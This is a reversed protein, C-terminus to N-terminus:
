TKRERLHLACHILSEVAFVPRLRKVVDDALLMNGLRQFLLDLGSPQGMGVQEDARAAGALGGAGLDQGLRDVALVRNVAIRAILAGGAAADVVPRDEVHDLEVGRGVVAHVVHAGQAVLRHEGGGIHALAHIDDVLHVHEAGRCEVGQQFDELFRRRVEHEDKRRRFQVFDRRRDEGAALPVAELADRDICDGRAQVIHRLLFVQVQLRVRGRQEGAHRVATHTVRQRQEVLAGAAIDDRGFRDDRGHAKGAVQARRLQQLADGIAVGCFCQFLEAAEPLVPFVGGGQEVLQAHELTVQEHLGNGRAAPTLQEGASVVAFRQLGEGASERRRLQQCVQLANLVREGGHRRLGVRADRRLKAQDPEAPRLQAVVHRRQARAHVLQFLGHAAPVDRCRCRDSRCIRGGDLPLLGHWCRVRHLFGLGLRFGFRHKVVHGRPLRGCRRDGRRLCLAFRLWHM